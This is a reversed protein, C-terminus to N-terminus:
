RPRVNVFAVRWNGGTGSGSAAGDMHDIRTTSLNDIAFVLAREPDLDLAAALAARIPGGHAVAVVDRGAHAETLREVAGHVRRMVDVFSEGGPPRTTAPSLWFNHYAGRDRSLALLEDYTKGSWGGFNQEALDPEVIPESELPYGAEAIAAATQRVRALPSMVWVAGRPLREALARFAARDSTDAAVEEDVYLRDSYGPVPAHRVWWWKTLRRMAGTYRAPPPPEVVPDPGRHQCIATGLGIELETM